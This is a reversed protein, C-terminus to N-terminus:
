EDFDNELEEDEDSYNRLRADYGHNYYNDTEDYGEECPAPRTEDWFNCMERDYQESYGYYVCNECKIM